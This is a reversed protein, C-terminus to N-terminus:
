FLPPVDNSSGPTPSSNDTPTSPTNSFDSGGSIQDKLGAITQTQSQKVNEMDVKMTEITSKLQGPTMASNVMKEAEKTASDTLGAVSGAAGSAVKAYERAGTYLATEFATLDKNGVNGQVWNIFRNGAPFDTQMNYNEGLKAAYDLNKMAANESSQIFAVQSTMKTLASQAATSGAKRAALAQGTLGKSEAESAVAKYFQARMAMGPAGMGFSPVASGPSAVYQAAMFGITDSDLTTGGGKKQMQYDLITGKFGSEQAALFEKVAAPAKLNSQYNEFSMPTRGAAKEQASYFEYDKQTTTNGGSIGPTIDKYTGDPQQQLMKGESTTTIASGSFTAYPMNVTYDQETSKGTKPDFSIRKIITSQGDPSPMPIEKVTPRNPNDKNNDLYNAMQYESMGTQALLDSYLQPDTAKIKDASVGGSAFTDLNGKAEAKIKDVQAQYDKQEGQGIQALTMSNSQVNSYVDSVAKALQGTIDSKEQAGVKKASELSSLATGSGSMHGALAMANTASERSAERVDAGKLLSNYYEEIKSIANGSQKKLQDYAGQQSTPDTPASPPTYPTVPTGTAPAPLAGGAVPTSVPISSTTKPTVVGTSKNYTSGDAYTTVDSAPSPTKTQPTKSIGPTYGSSVFVPANNKNVDFGPIVNIGQKTSMAPTKALPLIEM